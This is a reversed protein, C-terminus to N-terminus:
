GPVGSALGACLRNIRQRAQGSVLWALLLIAPFVTGWFVISGAFLLHLGGVFSAVCSFATLPIVASGLSGGRVAPQSLPLDPVVFWLAALAALWSGSWALGAHLAASLPNGWALGMSVGLLVSAPTALLIQVVIAGGLAIGYPNALPASKLIWASEHWESFSLNLVIVPVALVLLYVSLIPLATQSAESVTLPDEFQGSLLGVLVVAVVVNMPYLCRMRHAANGLLATTTLWVGIRTERALLRRPLGSFRLSGVDSERMRREHTSSRVPQMTQYLRSVRYVTMSCIVATGGLMAAGVGLLNMSPADCAADVFRALLASPLWDVWEPPFALWVEMAHEQNRFMMQGGYAVVAFVAIQTWALVAKWEEVRESRGVAALVLIVLCVSTLGGSITATLFAPVYWFGADRMGAGVIVPFLNLAAFIMGVYFLLNGFRAATYTRPSVPRPGIVGLDQPNFVVEHFEVLVTTVLILMSVSLSVFAFSFTSVRMFGILSCICSIALCQGVVWFVPTIVFTPRSGTSSAFHQSRLDMLILAKVLAFFQRPEVGLRILMREALDRM